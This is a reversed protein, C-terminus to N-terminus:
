AGAAFSFKFKRGEPLKVPAALFQKKCPLIESICVLPNTQSRYENTIVIVERQQIFNKL